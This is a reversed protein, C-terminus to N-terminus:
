SRAWLGWTPGPTQPSVGRGGGNGAMERQSQGGSRPHEDEDWAGSCRLHETLELCGGAHLKDPGGRAASGCGM